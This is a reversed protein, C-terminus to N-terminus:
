NKEKQSANPQFRGNEPDDAGTSAVASRNVPGGEEIQNLNTTGAKAERAM